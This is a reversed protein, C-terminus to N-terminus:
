VTDNNKRLIKSNKTKKSFEFYIIKYGITTFERKSNRQGPDQLESFLLPFRLTVVHSSARVNLPVYGHLRCTVEQSYRILEAKSLGLFDSKQAWGSCTCDGTVWAKQSPLQDPSAQPCCFQHNTLYINKEKKKKQKFIWVLPFSAVHIFPDVYSELLVCLSM